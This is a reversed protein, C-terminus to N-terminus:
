LGKRLSRSKRLSVHLHSRLIWCIEVREPGEFSVFNSGECNGNNDLRRQRDPGCRRGSTWWSWRRMRRWRPRRRRRQRCEGRPDRGPRGWPMGWRAIRGTPWCPRRRTSARMWASRRRWAGGCRQRGSAARPPWSATWIPRRRRRGSSLSASHLSPGSLRSSAPSCSQPFVRCSFLLTYSRCLTYSLLRSLVAIKWEVVVRCCCSELTGSLSQRASTAGATAGVEATLATTRNRLEAAAGHLHEVQTRQQKLLRKCAEAAAVWVDMSVM